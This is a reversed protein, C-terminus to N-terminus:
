REAISTPVLPYQELIAFDQKDRRPKEPVSRFAVILFSLKDEKFADKWIQNDLSQLFHGSSFTVIDRMFVTDLTAGNELKVEFVYFIM